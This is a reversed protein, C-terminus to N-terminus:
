HRLGNRYPRNQLSLRHGSKPSRWPRLARGHIKPDTIQELFYGNPGLWVHKAIEYSVTANIHIAQGSQISPAGFSKPPETNQSSWLYHIRWSTEIRKLPFATVAYYPHVTYAHSSLNLSTNQSYQGVPLDFDLVVRHHSSVAGLNKENWQLILPSLTLDGWGAATSGPSANVHSAAAVAEVGYWGGLLRYRSLWAIHTLSTISNVQGM